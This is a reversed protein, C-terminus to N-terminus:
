YLIDSYRDTEIVDLMFDYANHAKSNIATKLITPSCGSILFVGEDEIKAPTDNEAYVDWFVIKPIDYGSKEYKIKISEYNTKGEIASDFQMDSIIYIKDPMEEKSIDNEIGTKLITDFVSQLNTNMEWNSNKIYMCKEFINNGKIKCLEPTESFTFFYDKFFGTNREAMYMGLSISVYIPAIQCYASNNMSASVDVVVLSNEQETMYNPLNNWLADLTRINSENPKKVFVEKIIDYPYLTSANIKSEGSEVKSLFTKYREEDNNLFANKYIRSAQAPVKSYDISNWLNKSMKSEVINIQKRLKSLIKRYEKSTLGLHKRTKKALCKSVKSSTNESKMWKGLLSIENGMKLDRLDKELQKKMLDFAHRQLPTNVFSYLDDWRGYLPILHLNKIMTSSHTIALRNLAYRFLDREGQGERIDRIYFLIKITLLGDEALSKYLLDIFSEYDGREAAGKSFFNLLDSGTSKYSKAGNNTQTTNNEEIMKKLLNNM